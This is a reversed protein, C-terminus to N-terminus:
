FLMHEKRASLRESNQEPEDWLELWLPIESAEIVLKRTDSLHLVLGDEIDYEADVYTKDANWVKLESVLIGVGEIRKGAVSSAIDRLSEWRILPGGPYPRITYEEQAELVYAEVQKQLDLSHLSLFVPSVDEVVLGFATSLIRKPTLTCDYRQEPGLLDVVRRGKFRLLLERSM